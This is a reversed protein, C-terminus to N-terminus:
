EVNEFQFTVLRLCPVMFVVKIPINFIHLFKRIVTASSYNMNSENKLSGFEVEM